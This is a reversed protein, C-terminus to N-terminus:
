ISLGTTGAYPFSSNINIGFFFHFLKAESKGHWCYRMPVSIGRCSTICGMTFFSHGQLAHLDVSICLDLQLGPLHGHQLLDIVPPATNRHSVQPSPLGQKWVGAAQGQLVASQLLTVWTAASQLSSNSTLHLWVLFTQPSSNSMLHLWLLSTQLVREQPLTGMTCCPFLEERQAAPSAEPLLSVMVGM